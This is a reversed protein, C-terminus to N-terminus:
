TPIHSSTLLQKDNLELHSNDICFIPEDLARSNYVAFFYIFLDNSNILTHLSVLALSWCRELRHLTPRFFFVPFLHSNCHGTDSLLKFIWVVISGCYSSNTKRFTGRGLSCYCPLSCPSSTLLKANVAFRNYCTTRLQPRSGM